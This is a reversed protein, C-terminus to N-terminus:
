AFHWTIVPCRNALPYTKPFTIHNWCPLEALKPFYYVADSDKYIDLSPHDWIPKVHKLIEKVPVYPNAFHQALRWKFAHFGMEDKEQIITELDEKEDPSTFVRLVLTGNPKLVKKVQEFFLDPKEQFVTLCGDGIVTDFESDFPLDRWDGLIVPTQSLEVMEPTNDIALDALPAIEETVGLLLTKSGEKLQAKFLLVDESSPRLPPTWGQFQTSIKGWYDM